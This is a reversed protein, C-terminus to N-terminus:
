FFFRTDFQFQLDGRNLSLGAPVYEGRRSNMKIVEGTLRLWDYGSWSIAGTTADGDESWINNLAGVRRTQFLDERLSVRWDDVDYSALLFGSQFKTANEIGRVEVETYGSLQQAILVLAGVQTRAGFSWFKTRWAM